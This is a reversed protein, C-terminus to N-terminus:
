RSSGCTARVSTPIGESCRRSCPRGTRTATRTSRSCTARSGTALRRRQLATRRSSSRGSSPPSSSRLRRRSSPVHRGAARRSSGLGLTLGALVAPRRFPLPLAAGARRRAHGASKSGTMAFLATLAALALVIGLAAPVPLPPTSSCARLPTSTTCRGSPRSWPGPSCRRCRPRARGPASCCGGIRPPRARDTSAGDWARRAHPRRAAVPGARAPAATCRRRRHRGSCPRRARDGRRLASAAGSGCRGRAAHAGGPGRLRSPRACRAPRARRGSRGDVHRRDALLLDPGPSCRRVREDPRHHRDGRDRRRPDGSPPHGVGVVTVEERVTASFDRAFMTLTLRDGVEVGTRDAAFANVFVEDVQRQDPM